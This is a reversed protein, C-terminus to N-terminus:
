EETAISIIIAIPVALVIGIFGLTSAGVLM